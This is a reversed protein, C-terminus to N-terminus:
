MVCRKVVIAWNILIGFFLHFSFFVLPTNIARISYKTSSVVGRRIGSKNGM